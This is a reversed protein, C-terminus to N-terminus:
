WFQWWPKAKRPKFNKMQEEYEKQKEELTGNDEYIKWIDTDQDIHIVREQHTTVAFGHEPDWTCLFHWELYSIDDRSEETFYISQPGIFPKFDFDAANEPTINPVDPDDEPDLYYTEKLQPFEEILSRIISDRIEYQRQLLRRYANIEPQWDRSYDRNYGGFDLGIKGDSVEKANVWQKNLYGDWAELVIRTQVVELPNRRTGINIIKIDPIESDFIDM